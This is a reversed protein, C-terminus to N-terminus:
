MTEIIVRKYSTLNPTGNDTVELIIHVTGKSDPLNVKCRPQDNNTITVGKLTGPEEYVHWRYTLKDNKDNDHTKGADLAVVSRKDAKISIPSFSSDGNVSVVPHHNAKNYDPTSSWQIRAAFDNMIHQKWKNIANVGESSSTTMYYDDYISEDKGSSKIFDMGRPNKIKQTSFRGGWGGYEPHEPMNLGNAYLYLFSPSDGETAWIRDPYHVGLPKYSQINSKTWQDDPAWGYVHANRIYTVEPFNKAIWAGADDQGLIDYIRIKNLFKRLENDNRTGRIKHIAQALTNMGGWAAIWVPREDSKDDVVNIILESGPTDMNDGVGDMHSINQGRVTRSKIYEVSPFGSSHKQLNPFAAEYQNVVEMVKPLRDPDNLWAQTSILGEIDIRDACVLLHIMSQADDPDGGLDTMVIVRAKDGSHTTSAYGSLFSLCTLITLITSFIKNM